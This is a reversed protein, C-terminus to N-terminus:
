ITSVGSDGSVVTLAPRVTALRCIFRVSTHLYVSFYFWGGGKLPRGSNGGKDDAMLSKGSCWEWVNGALDMHGFQGAGAPYIGVPTPAGVLKDFNARELDPEAEGWPYKDFEERRESGSLVKPRKAAKEWEEVAPLRIAENRQRQETLWRCYAVAEYWSIETVPRNPTELQDEWRNPKEWNESMRVEWGAPEWFTSEEYGRNEVFRQYEGVTVPYKGLRVGALGPVVLFNDRAPALRPDGGRGLAEAFAIRDKVPVRATGEPMFIEMSRVLAAEYAATIEPRPQYQYVSLTQLLKGAVGTVRAETALDAGVDRLALVRELLKDVRGKGGEDWLCGPLLEITERWQADDLHKLVLPWWSSETEDDDNLRALQLAALFEQFTLHWFRFRRGPLEEVIGSGLCEFALWRRAEQLREEPTLDRFLRSVPVDVAIAGEQLDFVAKNTTAMALALRAFASWAFHNTFGEKERLDKRASILWSLVERYVFSRGEPIYRENCHVMCLYTLMLPNSTLHRIRSMKWLEGVLAARYREGEGNLAEPNDISYLAAAWRGIFSRIEAEDFPEVTALHFAMERLVASQGPRSTVVIPCRWHRAADRFVEFVRSRIEEDAVEELSDILLIAEGEELRRRWTERPIRHENGACTAEVLDLLRHRDDYLLQAEEKALQPILDSIRLLIPLLPKDDDLALHRKRWSPGGPCEIRLVDRALMCAVLRLFTTKGAGPSGELLLRPHRPLLDSLSAPGQLSRLPTYLKEIPHRLIGKISGSSVGSISIHSTRDILSQLYGDFDAVPTPSPSSAQVHIPRILAGAADEPFANDHVLAGEGSGRRIHKLPWLRVEGEASLTGWAYGILRNEKETGYHELGFLSPAQFFYRPKGGSIAVSETRGEHMHGHLCLDFRDPTYISEFFAQRGSRSLWDPPHHMMLFSREHRGFVELPSAGRTQPLAAQFQRLPLTLKREFDGGIYQQWTSNLGVLCLPFAEPIAVELCFDGPFHSLHLKTRKKLDPLLRRKFWAQYGKFLPEIFSADKKKEGWITEEVLQVDADDGGQAFKELVRYPLEAMGQPRQLDHNGPVAVILPDADLWGLLAELLRDVRKFEKPDGTNTLDGSLLLLDPPGLRQAMERVSKGLVEQVQWWLDEGRCGLHLDSLHLWRIPRPGAM